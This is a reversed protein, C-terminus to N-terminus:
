GAHRKRGKVQFQNALRCSGNTMSPRLVITDIRIPAGDDDYEITVQSKADPRLYTMNKCERRLKALEILLIHWNSLWAADPKRNM